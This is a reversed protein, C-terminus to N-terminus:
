YNRDNVPFLESNGIWRWIDFRWNLGEMDGLQYNSALGGAPSSEIYILKSIRSHVLAMCCMVCPEHTTYVTMGQCLYNGTQSKAHVRSLKENQAVIEIAKMIAHEFPNEQNCSVVEVQQRGGEKEDTFIVAHKSADHDEGGAKYCDRLRTVMKQEHVPDFVVTSLYQHNPNGKWSMPWYVLSWELSQERTLPHCSPVSVQIIEVPPLVHYEELYQRVEEETECFTTDFLLILLNGSGDDKKIRKVHNLSGNEALSVEQRIFKTYEQAQSPSIACCWVTVLTPECGPGAGKFRGKWRIQQLLGYLIGSELNM